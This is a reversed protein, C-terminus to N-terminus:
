QVNVLGKMILVMKRVQREVYGPDLSRLRGAQELRNREAALREVVTAADCFFGSDWDYYEPYLLLAAAVLEDISRRATRRPVKHRDHTLGWGAYFPRGYVHVPLERMLAEFGVLSTMTHVEDVQELCAPIAVSEVVLDCCADLVQPPVRGRRNGSIVDPHPKYVIFADPHEERVAEILQRNDAIDSCGKLVSADDAVQGPIFIVRRGDRSTLDLSEASQHNYKSLRAKMLKERLRRAATIEAETFRHHQLIAELRSPRGPDFYIGEPDLVLSFPRSFDSGLGVSRLFGDEMRLLATGTISLLRELGEPERAGWVVVEDGPRIGSKLAERVSRVFVVRNRRSKLFPLVNYRKWHRVGFCYVNRSRLRDHDMQRKLVRLVTMLDCRRGTFPDVYRSYLLYAAAFVEEVSRHARRRSCGQRDDTLGWGAYFPMGFCVVQKGLMLAEFGLLSTAVYVKDFRELLAIPNVERELLRVSPPLVAGDRGGKRLGAITEPHLKVYVEADPNERLASGVMAGLDFAGEMGFRVSADDRVQDVVLVKKVGGRPPLLSEDVAAGNYKSIRHQLIYAIAERARGMLGADSFLADDNLMVELASPTRADFYIGLSDVLLALASELFFACGVM